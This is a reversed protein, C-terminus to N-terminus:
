GERIGATGGATGGESGTGARSDELLVERAGRRWGAFGGAAGTEDRGRCCGGWSGSGLRGPVERLMGVGRWLNTVGPSGSARASVKLRKNEQGTKEQASIKSNNFRGEPEFGDM